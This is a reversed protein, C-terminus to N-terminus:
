YPRPVPLTQERTGLKLFKRIPVPELFRGLGYLQLCARVLFVPTSVLINSGQRLTITYCVKM